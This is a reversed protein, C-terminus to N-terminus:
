FEMVVLWKKDCTIWPHVKWVHEEANLLNRSISYLSSVVHVCCNQFLSGIIMVYKITNYLVYGLNKWYIVVYIVCSQELKLASWFKAFGSFIMMNWLLAKNDQKQPLYKSISNCILHWTMFYISTTNEANKLDLACCRLVVFHCKKQLIFNNVSLECKQTYMINM